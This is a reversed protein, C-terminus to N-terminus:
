IGEIAEVSGVGVVKRAMDVIGAASYGYSRDPRAM